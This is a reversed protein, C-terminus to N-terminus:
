DALRYGGPETLLLSARTPDAEIKRRLRYIHTELTHTSVTAAYGWVEALLRDRGVPGRARHLAQLIAVEKDTLRVIRGGDDALLRAAADLRWPGIALARRALLDEIRAVLAALRVPKAIVAAAGDVPGAGLAVVMEVRRRLLACVAAASDGCPLDIVALEAEATAARDPPVRSVAFGAQALAEAVAGGLAADQGIVVIRRGGGTM